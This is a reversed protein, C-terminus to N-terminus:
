LYPWSVSSGRLHILVLANRLSYAMEPPPLLSAKRPERYVSEFHTLKNLRFLFYKDLHRLFSSLYRFLSFHFTNEKRHEPMSHSDRMRVISASHAEVIEVNNSIWLPLSAVHATQRQQSDASCLAPLVNRHLRRQRALAARTDGSDLHLKTTNHRPSHSRTLVCTCRVGFRAKTLRRPIAKGHSLTSSFRSFRHEERMTEGM